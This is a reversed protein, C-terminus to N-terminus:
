EDWFSTGLWFDLFGVGVAFLYDLVGFVFENPVFRRVGM